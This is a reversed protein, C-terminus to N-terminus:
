QSELTVVIAKPLFLVTNTDVETSSSVPCLLGESEESELLRSLGARFQFFFSSSCNVFSFPAMDMM